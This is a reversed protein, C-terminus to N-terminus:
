LHQLRAVISYASDIKDKMDERTIFCGVRKGKSVAVTM